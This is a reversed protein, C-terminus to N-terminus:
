SRRQSDLTALIAQFVEDMGQEGNVDLLHGKDRYFQILPETQAYYVRLRERVTGESDDSRQYLDGGCKDCTGADKPPDFVLHYTAGCNRCVRRGTLRRVLEEDSVEINLVADLGLELRELTEELAEAQNVTRPFGDLIFGDGGAIDEQALREEVIGVVVEDPVLKGQDMFEKAKLGLPTGEKVAARFIDGTSVHPVGEHAALKVAQTGKGAGPPGLFVVRIGM